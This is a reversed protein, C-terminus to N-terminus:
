RVLRFAVTYADPRAFERAGLSTGLTRGSM